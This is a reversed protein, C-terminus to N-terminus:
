LYDGVLWERARVSPNFEENRAHCRYERLNAREGPFQRLVCSRICQYPDGIWLFGRFDFSIETAVYDAFRHIARSPAGHGDNSDVFHPGCQAEPWCGMYTRARLAARVSALALSDIGSDDAM